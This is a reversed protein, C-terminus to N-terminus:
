SRDMITALFPKRDNFSVVIWEQEADDQYEGLWVGQVYASKKMWSIANYRVDQVYVSKKM